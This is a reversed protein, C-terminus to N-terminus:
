KVLRIRMWPHWKKEFLEWKATMAGDKTVSLTARMKSDGLKLVGSKELTAEMTLMSGSNDFSTLVYVKRQEDYGILEIVETRDNGMFVDVRHLIFYGGSVWEYTDMGRIKKSKDLADKKIIEGETHWKGILFSLQKM